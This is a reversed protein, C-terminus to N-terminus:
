SAFNAESSSTSSVSVRTAQKAKVGSSAFTVYPIEIESNLQSSLDKLLNNLKTIEGSSMNASSTDLVLLVNQKYSTARSYDYMNVCSGGNCCQADLCQKGNNSGCKGDTTLSPTNTPDVVTTTTSSQQKTTTTTTTTKTKTTTTTKTKTTTTTQADFCFGYNPDCKEKTYCKKNPKGDDYIEKCKSVVTDVCKESAQVYPLFVALIFFALIAFKKINLM